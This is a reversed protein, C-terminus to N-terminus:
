LPILQERGPGNNNTMTILRQSRALTGPVPILTCAVCARRSGRFRELSRELSKSLYVVVRLKAPHHM